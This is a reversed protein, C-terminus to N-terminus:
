PNVRAEHTLLALCLHFATNYSLTSFKVMFSTYLFVRKSHKLAPAEAAREVATHAAM